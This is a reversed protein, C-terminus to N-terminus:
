AGFYEKHLFRVSNEADKGDVVFTINIGSAGQSVMEVNINNKGIVSFTRGLIGPANRIGEGVVCIVSRNKLVEINAIGKLENIISDISKENDITLSVSVESTSVVDVSKKYKDFVAFLKALFGYAGLIRASNVHILTINKKVSIAKVIRKDKVAKNLILTGKGSPNFTNLVRVPINRKVAPLITKPHLVKAGFYALESAEEFSVTEITKADKVIKPDTSMIGDVDTWIQIEEANIASGVIAATYDSGGRGLTTIEGKETKGIFGTIVPLTSLKKINNNLNNFTEELPEGNGFDNTTLFGLDWADFAKAKIGVKNLQAAVIKSSLQEGFSQFIDLTKADINKSNKSNNKIKNAFNSLAAIDNEILSKDLGLKEIIDYHIRKINDLIDDGKGQSASNGLEVLKDTIGSVASVVIVPKKHMYYKIIRAVNVIREANGVSTGGFKMVLM